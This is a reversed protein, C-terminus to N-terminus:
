RGCDVVAQRPLKVLPAFWLNMKQEGSKWPNTIGHSKKSKWTRLERFDTFNWFKQVGVVTLPKDGYLVM